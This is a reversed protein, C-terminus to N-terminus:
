TEPAPIEAIELVLTVAAEVELIVQMLEYDGFTEGMFVHKLVSVRELPRVIGSYGIKIASLTCRLNKVIAAVGGPRSELATNNEPTFVVGGSVFLYNPQDRKQGIEIIRGDIEVRYNFIWGDIPAQRVGARAQDLCERVYLQATKPTMIRRTRRFSRSGVMITTALASAGLGCLIPIGWPSAIRTLYAVVIGVVAIMAWSVVNTVIGQAFWNRFM